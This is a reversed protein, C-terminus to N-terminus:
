EEEGVKNGIKKDEVNENLFENLKDINYNAQIEGFSNIRVDFGELEEHLDPKEKPLKKKVM